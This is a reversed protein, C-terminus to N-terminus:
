VPLNGESRDIGTDEKSRLRSALLCSGPRGGVLQQSNLLAHKRHRVDSLKWPLVPVVCTFILPSLYQKFAKMMVFRLLSRSRSMPLELM